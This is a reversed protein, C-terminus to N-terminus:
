KQYFSYRAKLEQRLRRKKFLQWALWVYYVVFASYIASSVILRAWPNNTGELIQLAIYGSIFVVTAIAINQNKLRVGQTAASAHVNAQSKHAFIDGRSLKKGIKNLVEGATEFAEEYDKKTKRLEPWYFYLKNDIIEMDCLAAHRILVEMADPAIISLASIAYKDPAYLTFYKYFDGELELRQAADFKIPLTSLSSSGNGPEVLSDIVMHPLMRPLTIEMVTADYDRRHKGSGTEYYYDFLTFPFGQLGGIFVHSVSHSGSNGHTFLTGPLGVIGEPLDNEYLLGNALAFRQRVGANIAKNNSSTHVVMIVVALFIFVVVFFAVFSIWDNRSMLFISLIVIALASMAVTANSGTLEM